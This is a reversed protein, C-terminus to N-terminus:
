SLKLIDCILLFLEGGAIATLSSSLTGVLYYDSFSHKEFQKFRAISKAAIVIAIGEYHGSAILVFMIVRELIGIVEGYKYMQLDPLEAKVAAAEQGGPLKENIKRNALFSPLELFLKTIITGGNALYLLFAAALICYTLNNYTMSELLPYETSLYTIAYSSWPHVTVNEIFPYVFLIALVHLIQDAMFYFLNPLQEYKKNLQIKTRDLVFHLASLIVIVISLEWSLFASTLVFASITFHLTHKLMIRSDKGKNMAIQGTQFYFDSLVHSLLLLSIIVESYM